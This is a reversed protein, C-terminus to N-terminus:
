EQPTRLFEEVYNVFEAPKESIVWHGADIDKLVFKPFFRGITPIAEDPIYHSRTGRIFLAPGIFRDDRSDFPFEAIHDLAKALIDLAVRFGVTGDSKFKANTLLFNRIEINQEYKGLVEFSDKISRLGMRDIHRLAQVYKPIDSGLAADIPANDVAIMSDVIDPRRLAVAMATKAGMSHGLIVSPKKITTDIFHEVDLALGKYDHTRAHPSDGHNRLDLAYVTTQLEKAFRRCVSRNNQKSGLLGHLVVIPAINSNKVSDPSPPDFQLYDLAIPQENSVTQRLPSTSLSRACNFTSLNLAYRSSILLNRVSHVSAQYLSM